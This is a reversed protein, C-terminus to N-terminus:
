VDCFRHYFCTRPELQNLFLSNKFIKFISSKLFKGLQLLIIKFGIDRHLFCRKQSTVLISFKSTFYNLVDSFLVLFISKVKNAETSWLFLTNRGPFEWFFAWLVTLIQTDIQCAARYSKHAATRISKVRRWTISFFVSRTSKVCVCGRTSDASNCHWV